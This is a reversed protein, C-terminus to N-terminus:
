QTKEETTNNKLTFDVFKEGRTSLSGVEGEALAEFLISPVALKVSASESLLFEVTYAERPQNKLVIHKIEMAVVTATRTIIPLHADPHRIQRRLHLFIAILGVVLAILACTAIIPLIKDM